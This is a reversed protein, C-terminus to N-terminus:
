LILCRGKGRSWEIYHQLEDLSLCARSDIGCLTNLRNLNDYVLDPSFGMVKTLIIYSVTRCNFRFLKYAQMESVLESEICLKCFTDSHSVEINQELDDFVFPKFTLKNANDWDLRVQLPPKGSPRQIVVGIYVHFLYKDVVMYWQVTGKKKCTHRNLVKIESLPFM